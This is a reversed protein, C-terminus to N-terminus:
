LAHQTYNLTCWQTCFISTMLQGGRHRDMCSGLLLMKTRGVTITKRAMERQNNFDFKTYPPEQTAPLNARQKMLEKNRLSSPHTSNFSRKKEVLPDFCQEWFLSIQWVSPCGVSLKGTTPKVILGKHTRPSCECRSKPLQRRDRALFIM